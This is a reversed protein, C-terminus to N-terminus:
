FKDYLNILIIQSDKYNQNVSKEILSIAYKDLNDENPIIKNIIDRLVERQIYYDSILYKENSDKINEKMFSSMNKLYM